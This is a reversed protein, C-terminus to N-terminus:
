EENIMVSEIKYISQNKTKIEIACGAVLNDSLNGPIKSHSIYFYHFDENVLDIAPIIRVNTDNNKTLLLLEQYYDDIAKETNNKEFDSLCVEPVIGCRATGERVLDIYSGQHVTMAFPEQQSPCFPMTYAPKQSLSHIGIPVILTLAILVISASRSAILETHLDNTSTFNQELEKTLQSLGVAPLILFFPMTSAYFRAGGDIPPLFPISLFIGVFGAMLLSSHNSRVDKVLEVLGRILLILTGM